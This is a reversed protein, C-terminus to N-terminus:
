VLNSFYMLHAKNVFQFSNNQSLPMLNYIAMTPCSFCGSICNNWVHLLLMDDLDTKGRNYKTNFTFNLKNWLMSFTGNNICLSYVNCHMIMAGQKFFIIKINNNSLIYFEDWALPSSHIWVEHIPHLHGFTWDLWILRKKIRVNLKEMFVV